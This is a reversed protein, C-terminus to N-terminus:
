QQIYKCLVGESKPEWESPGVAGLVSYQENGEPTMTVLTGVTRPIWSPYYTPADLARTQYCFRGDKVLVLAIHHAEAFKIAGSQFRSASFIMGKQAGVARLKDNLVQVDSREIPKRQRKCEVLVLFDAGLAQFRATVDFVFDGEPTMIAELHSSRFERLGDAEEELIRRVEEEFQSPSLDFPNM